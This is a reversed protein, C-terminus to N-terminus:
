IVHAAFHMMQNSMRQRQERTAASPRVETDIRNLAPLAHQKNLASSIRVRTHSGRGGDNVSSGCTVFRVSNLYM